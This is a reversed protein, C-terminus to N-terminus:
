GQWYYVSGDFSWGDGFGPEYGFTDYFVQTEYTVEDYYWAPYTQYADYYQVVEEIVYQDAFYPTYGYQDYWLDVYYQDWVVPQTDHYVVTTDDSLSDPNELVLTLTGCGPLWLGLVMGCLPLIRNM